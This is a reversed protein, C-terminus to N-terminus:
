GGLTPNICEWEYDDFNIEVDKVIQGKVIEIDQNFEMGREFGLIKFDVKYKKSIEVLQETYICWAFKTELCIVPNPENEERELEDLYVEMYKVFGRQTGEIWATGEFHIENYKDPKLPNQDEGMCNVPKLGNLIFNELNNKKGRVKLTGECWNSM